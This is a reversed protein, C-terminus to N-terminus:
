VYRRFLVDVVVIATAPITFSLEVNGSSIHRRIDIDIFFVRFGCCIGCSLGVPSSFPNSYESHQRKLDRIVRAVFLESNVIINNNVNQCSSQSSGPYLPLPRHEPTM